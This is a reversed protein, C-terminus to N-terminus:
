YVIAIFVSNYEYLPEVVLPESRKVLETVEEVIVQVGLIEGGVPTLNTGIFEVLAVTVQVAGGKGEPTLIVDQVYVSVPELVAVPVSDEIVLGWVIVPSCAPANQVPNVNCGTPVAPVNRGYM